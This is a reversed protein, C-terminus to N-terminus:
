YMYALHKNSEISEFIETNSEIFLRDISYYKYNGKSDNLIENRKLSKNYQFIYKFFKCMLKKEMFNFM